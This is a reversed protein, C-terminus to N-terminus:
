FFLKWADISIFGEEYLKWFKNAELGTWNEIQDNRGRVGVNSDHGFVRRLRKM